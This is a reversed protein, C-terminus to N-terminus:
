HGQSQRSTEHVWEAAKQAASAAKVILADDDRLRKIWCQRHAVSNEFGLFGHGLVNLLTIAAAFRHLGGLRTKKDWDVKAEVPAEGTARAISGSDVSLDSSTAAPANVAVESPAAADSPVPAVSM